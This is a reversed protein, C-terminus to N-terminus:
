KSVNITADHILDVRRDFTIRYSDDRRWKAIEKHNGSLLVSPVDYGNWTSPKTYQSYELYNGSFSEDHVSEHNHMVGDLYRLCAETVLIAPVEGGFVVFDGISIEIMGYKDIWHDIVRQDIGEYRGCLFIFGRGGNEQMLEKAINQNFTNGRPSMFIIHPKSKNEYLSLAYSMSEHVVNPKMIMGSGGGYPTDDVTKHKDSAFDRMNVVELNWLKGLSRGLLSCGLPGPFIEPFITVFTILM